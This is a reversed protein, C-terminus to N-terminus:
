PWKYNFDTPFQDDCAFFCLIGFCILMVAWGLTSNYPAVNLMFFVGFIFIGLFISCDIIFGITKLDTHKNRYAAEYEDIFRKLHNVAMERDGM